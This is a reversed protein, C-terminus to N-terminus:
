PLLLTNITSKFASTNPLVNNTGRDAAPLLDDHPSSLLLPSERGHPRELPPPSIDSPCILPQLFFSWFYSAHWSDKNLENTCAYINLKIYIDFSSHLLCSHPVPLCSLVEWVASLSTRILPMLTQSSKWPQRNCCNWCRFICFNQSTWVLPKSAALFHRDWLSLQWKICTSSAGWGGTGPNLKRTHLKLM